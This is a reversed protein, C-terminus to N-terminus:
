SPVSLDVEAKGAQAHLEAGPHGGLDSVVGRAEGVGPCQLGVCAGCRDGSGRALLFVDAAAEDVVVSEVVGPVRPGEGSEFARGAGVGVVPSSAVAAVPVGLGRSVEVVSQEALEEVAQVGALVEVLM